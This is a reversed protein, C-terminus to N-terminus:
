LRFSPQAESAPRGRGMLGPSARSLGSGADYSSRSFATILDYYYWVLGSRMRHVEPKLVPKLEPRPGSQRWDPEGHRVRRVPALPIGRLRGSARAKTAAGASSVTGPVASGVPVALGSPRIGKPSARDDARQAMRSRYKVLGCCSKWMFTIVVDSAEGRCCSAESPSNAHSIRSSVPGAKM